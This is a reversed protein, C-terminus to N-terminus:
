LGTVKQAVRYFMALDTRFCRSNGAFSTMGEVDLKAAEELERWYIIEPTGVQRGEFAKGQCLQVLDIPEEEENCDRCFSDM